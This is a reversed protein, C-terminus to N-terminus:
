SRSFSLTEGEGADNRMPLVRVGKKVHAMSVADDNCVVLGIPLLMGKVEFRREMKRKTTGKETMKNAGDVSEEDVTSM